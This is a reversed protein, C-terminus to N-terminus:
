RPIRQLCGDASAAASPVHLSQVVPFQARRTARDEVPTAERAWRLDLNAGTLLVVVPGKVRVDYAIGSKTVASRPAPKARSRFQSSRRVQKKLWGGCAAPYATAAAGRQRRTSAACTLPQCSRTSARAALRAVTPLDDLVMSVRTRRALFYRATREGDAPDGSPLDASGRRSM